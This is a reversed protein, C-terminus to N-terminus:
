DGRLLYRGTDAQRAARWARWGDLPAHHDGTPMVQPLAAVIRRSRASVLAAWVLLARLPPQDAAPLANASAALEARAHQHTARVLASLQPTWPRQTLQEPAIKAADLEALPIRVRGSRADPVLACMLEAEHLARGFERVDPRGRAGLAFTAIPEVVAASWRECYASLERRTEFTANALDWTAADVFGRLGQLAQGADGSFLGQLQRTLPHQGQGSVARTCEERWWALRAHAVDHELAPALSATVEREIGTLAALLPRQAHPSYLWALARTPGLDPRASM